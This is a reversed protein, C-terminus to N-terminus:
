IDLAIFVKINNNKMNKKTYKYMKCKNSQVNMHRIMCEYLCVDFM